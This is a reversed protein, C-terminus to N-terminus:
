NSCQMYVEQLSGMKKKLNGETKEQVNKCMGKQAEGNIHM